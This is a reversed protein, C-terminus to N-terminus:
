PGSEGPDSLPTEFGELEQRRPLALFGLALAAVWFPAVAGLWPQFLWGYALGLPIALAGLAASLVHAQFFRASRRGPDRLRDRSGLSRRLVYSTVTLVFLAVLLGQRMQEPARFAARPDRWRILLGSVAIGCAIAVLVNLVASRTREFSAAASTERETM